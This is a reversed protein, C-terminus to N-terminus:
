EAHINDEFEGLIRTIADLPGGNKLMSEVQTMVSMISRKSSFNMMGPYKEFMTMGNIAFITLCFIAFTKNM